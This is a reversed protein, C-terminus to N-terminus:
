KGNDRGEWVRVLRDIEPRSRMETVCMLIHNPLEPYFRSLDLGGLIGAEGLRANVKDPQEDTQVVFEKFTPVHFPLTVGPIQALRTKAYASKALCQRGVEALGSPGLLALHVAAALACLAQNSCINSGAKERRIHQERAQLTLVYGERGRADRTRGCIRGPMRRLYKERVAMFGLYPGGFSLPLGLGQGEGVAVDAGLEGPSALIGLSVPDICAILLAGAQHALAGWEELSEIGGFFNPNAVVVGATDRNILREAQNLSTLGDEYPIETMELGQRRLYTDMTERYEPHLLRSVLVTKRGTSRIALLAAETVATAGDYLSANAADLGTLECIMTQYEFIAQLTGQSIEPQYPTYSTYFESRALIHGVARPRYHQYAGAGRFCLYQESVTRNRQALAAVEEWVTKEPLGAPLDLGGPLRLHEPIDDFLADVSVVGLFRLMEQVDETTHPIYPTM